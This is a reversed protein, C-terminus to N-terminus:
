IIDNLDKPEKVTDFLTDIIRKYVVDVSADADIEVVRDNYWEKVPLSTKRFNDLRKRIIEDSSDDPRGSGMRGRRTNREITVEDPVTLWIVVSVNIMQDLKNAQDVSRPYGDVLFSQDIRLGKKIENYVIKNIMSDPLLDGGDIISSIKNGLLSNSSIETRLIDGSCIFKYDFEEVLKKCMTGKGSGPPGLIIINM